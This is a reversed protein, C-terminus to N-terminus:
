PQSLNLWLRLWLTASEVLKLAGGCQPVRARGRVGPRGTTELAGFAGDQNPGVGDALALIRYERSGVKIKTSPSVVHVV